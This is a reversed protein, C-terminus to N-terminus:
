LLAYPASTVHLHKQELILLLRRRLLRSNALVRRAFEGLTDDAKGSGYRKLAMSYRFDVLDDRSRRWARFAAEDKRRRTRMNRGM